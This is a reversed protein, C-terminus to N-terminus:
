CRAPEPPRHSTSPCSAAPTAHLSRGGASCGNPWPTTPARNRSSRTTAIGPQGDSVYQRRLLRGASMTRLPLGLLRVLQSRNEYARRAHAVAEPPVAFVDTPTALFALALDSREGQVSLTLSDLAACVRLNTVGDTYVYNGLVVRGQLGCLWEIAAGLDTLLDLGAHASM